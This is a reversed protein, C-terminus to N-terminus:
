AFHTLIFGLVAAPRMTVGQQTQKTILRRDTNRPESWLTERLLFVGRLHSASNVPRLFRVTLIAAPVVM